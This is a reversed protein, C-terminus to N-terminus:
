RLIASQQLIRIRDAEVIEKIPVFDLFDIISLVLYRQNNPIYRKHAAQYLSTIVESCGPVGLDFLYCQNYHITRIQEGSYESFGQGLNYNLQNVVEEIIKSNEYYELSFKALENFRRRIGGSVYEVAYVAVLNVSNPIKM